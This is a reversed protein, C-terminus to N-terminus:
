YGAMTRAWTAAAIALRRMRPARAVGAFVDYGSAEIRKLIDFYIAAMIRAAVVRRRDVRPLEREAKEYYTKARDLEYRILARVKETMVLACLDEEGCGFRALDELPLYIRGRELDVAVDRVINTLQLAIGLDVAYERSRPDGYGFIEICILGVASAVRLCYQQLAAFDDYRCRVLDMEVGAIVADFADRPLNFRAIFPQLQRAQASQPSGGRYCCDLERRWHDLERRATERAEVAVDGGPSCPVLDDVTDDVVRCFDWVAVIARRKAEPLFVFSYYFSTNRGSVSLDLRSLAFRTDHRPLAGGRSRAGCCARSM